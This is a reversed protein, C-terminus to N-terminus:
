ANFRRTLAREIFATTSGAFVIRGSRPITERIKVNIERIIPPFLCRFLSESRYDLKELEGSDV